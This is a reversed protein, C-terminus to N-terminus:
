LLILIKFIGAGNVSFKRKEDITSAIDYVLSWMPMPKTEKYTKM